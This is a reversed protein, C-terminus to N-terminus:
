GFSAGDSFSSNDEFKASASFPDIKEGIVDPWEHLRTTTAGNANIVTLDIHGGIGHIAPMHPAAPNLGPKGRMTEFLAVGCKGLGEEASPLAAIEEATLANGGGFDPGVDHLIFPEFQPYVDATSFFALFPGRTESLGALLVECPASSVVGKKAQELLTHTREIVADVSDESMALITEAYAEFAMSGRGTVALPLGPSRWVKERIDILTGDPLYVAGDSLLEVSDNYTM